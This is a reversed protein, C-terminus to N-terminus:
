VEFVVELARFATNGPYVRVPVVCEITEIGMEAWGSSESESDSDEGEDADHYSGTLFPNMMATWVGLRSSPPTPTAPSSMLPVRREMPVLEERARWGRGWEGPSGDRMMAKVEVARGKGKGKGGTGVSVLLCLRLKWELGGEGCVDFGPSEDSPIDLGFSVRRMDVVLSSHHEAHVRRVVEGTWPLREHGELM